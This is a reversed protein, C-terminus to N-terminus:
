GWEIESWGSCFPCAGYQSRIQAGCNPCRMESMVEFPIASSYNLEKGVSVFKITQIAVTNYSIENAFSEIYAVTEFARDVGLHEFRIKHVGGYHHKALETGRRTLPLQITFDHTVPSQIIQRSVDNLCTVELSEAREYMTFNILEDYFIFNGSDILLRFDNTHDKKRITLDRECYDCYKKTPETVGGCRPCHYATVKYLIKKAM